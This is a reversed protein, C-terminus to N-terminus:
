GLETVSDGLSNTIWLHGDAVAVATPGHLRFQAGSDIRVQLEPRDPRVGHVARAGNCGTGHQGHACDRVPDQGARLVAASIGSGLLAIACAVGVAGRLRMGSSLPWGNSAPAAHRPSYGINVAQVASM